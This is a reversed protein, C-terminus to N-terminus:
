GVISGCYECTNYHSLKEEVEKIEEEMSDKKEKLMKLEKRISFLTELSEKINNYDIILSNDFVKKSKEEVVPYNKVKIISNIDEKLTTYDNILDRSFSKLSEKNVIPYMKVKEITDINRYLKEYETLNDLTFHKIKCTSPVVTLYESTEKLLDIDINLKAQKNNYSILKEKYSKLRNLDVKNQLDEIAEIKVKNKNLNNTYEQLEKGIRDEEIKFSQFIKGSDSVCFINEFLKFLEADSKDFPFLIQWAGELNLIDNKYDIVFGSNDLVKTINSTGLKSYEKGNIIYKSGTKNRKWEITNDNYVMSVSTSDTGHKIFKQSGSSNLLLTKISRLISSKGNASQGVILSISGKPFTLEADKIIQFDKITLQLDKNSNTMM